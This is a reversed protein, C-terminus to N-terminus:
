PLHGYQEKNEFNTQQNQAHNQKSFFKSYDHQMKIDGGNTDENHEGLNLVIQLLIWMNFISFGRIWFSQIKSLKNLQKYWAFYFIETKKVYKTCM